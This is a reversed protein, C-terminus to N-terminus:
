ECGHEEQSYQAQNVFTATYWALRRNQEFEGQLGDIFFRLMALLLAIEFVALLGLWYL